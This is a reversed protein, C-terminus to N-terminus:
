CPTILGESIRSRRKKHLKKLLKEQRNKECFIQMEALLSKPTALMRFESIPICFDM